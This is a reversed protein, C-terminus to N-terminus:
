GCGAACGNSRRMINRAAVTSQSRPKAVQVEAEAPKYGMYHVELTYHGPKLDPMEFNGSLNTVSARTSGKIMVSAGPLANGDPDTIQGNINGTTQQALVASFVPIMM